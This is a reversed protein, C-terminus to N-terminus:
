ATAVATLAATFAAFDEDEELLPQHGAHGNALLFVTDNTSTDGDVSIANFSRAAAQRRGRGLVPVPSAAAATMWRCRSGSGGRARWSFSSRPSASPRLPSRAWRAPMPWGRAVPAPM